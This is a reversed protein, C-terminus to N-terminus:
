EEEIRIVTEKSVDVDRLSQLLAVVVNTAVEGVFENTPIDKGGNTITIKRSM